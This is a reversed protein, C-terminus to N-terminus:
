VHDGKFREELYEALLQNFSQSQDNHLYHGAEPLKYVKDKWLKFPAKDLYHIQLMKDELGFFVLIPIEHSILLAIEDSVKGETVSQILATRFPPKTLFFDETNILIDKEVPFALSNTFFSRVDEQSVQDHFFIYDGAVFVDALTYEGGIACAACLAIGAPNLSYNLMECVVNTGYSFGVLSFPKDNALRKVAEGMIKGTAIPSYDWQITKSIQSQGTGPLDFAILRYNNFLECKFQKEWTKSSGSNGHIFFIIQKKDPNIERYAIQINEIEIFKM